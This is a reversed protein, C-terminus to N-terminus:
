KKNVYCAVINEKSPILKTGASISSAEPIEAVAYDGITTESVVHLSDTAKVGYIFKIYDNQYLKIVKTPEHKVRSSSAFGVANFRNIYGHETMVIVDTDHPRIVSLGDVKDVRMGINGKAIKKLLPIETMNYRIAKNKAYLIVEANDPIIMSSQINDNDDLKMYTTGKITLGLLDTLNLKKIYGNVTVCTFFFPIDVRKSFKDIVSEPIINSINSTLDKILIRIDVGNSRNDHLPIKHVPLRYCKGRDDFLVVNDINNVKIAFKPKDDKFKPFTTREADIKSINNKETIIIKFLGEPIGTVDSEKIIKCRRPQGYTNKLQQLENYVDLALANEDIIKNYLETATANLKTLEEEYMQIHYPSIKSLDNHIVFSAQLDTLKFKKILAEILSNDDMQRNNRILSIISDLRSDKGLNIYMELAHIRTMLTQYQSSYLRYKVMKRFEIFFQLYAKYSLRVINQNLPDYVEFNISMTTQLSTKKYLVQRVYNLDTGKKFKIICNLSTPTCDEHISIIQPLDTFKLNEIANKIPDLRVQNPLSRIFLAPYGKYEGMDIKSRIVYQGKGKNCIAKWNTDVIECAMCHDPRLVVQANPNRILEMTADIVESINHSPIDTKMGVGIGSSGNILLLPLKIPLYIPQVTSEDYNKEWDVVQNTEALEGIAVDLGFQSLATETYRYHAPGDGQFSGFNGQSKFIPMYCDYWNIMALLSEYTSTDGHPHYSGLMDGVLRACKKTQKTIKTTAFACYILKMHVPKFSYLSPITRNSAVEIAYDTLDKKNQDAINVRIPDQFNIEPKKKM